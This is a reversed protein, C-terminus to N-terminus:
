REEEERKNEEGKRTEKWCHQNKKGIEEKTWYSNHNGGKVKGEYLFFDDMLIVAIEGPIVQKTVLTLLSIEDNLSKLLESKQQDPNM